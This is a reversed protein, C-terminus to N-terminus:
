SFTLDGKATGAPFDRDLFSGDSNGQTIKQLDGFKRIEPAQYSRKAVKKDM